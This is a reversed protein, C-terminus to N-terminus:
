KLLASWYPLTVNRNKAKNMRLQVYGRALRSWRGAITLKKM